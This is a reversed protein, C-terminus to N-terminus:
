TYLGTLHIIELVADPLLYRPSQGRALSARIATASIALQTVDQYCIAGAPAQHLAASETTQREALMALVRPDSPAAAEPRRMVVLHALRLIQEPQHWDAFHEFADGGVLLCLPRQEGLEARLSLLTDLTRSPGARDLERRDVVLGAQGALAAALMRLRVEGSAQPQARHVAQNLPILRLEDLGLAQYVEFAPRLHGFHIPDFTGGFIGIM